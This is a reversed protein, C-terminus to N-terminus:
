SKFALFRVSSGKVPSGPMLTKMVTPTSSM